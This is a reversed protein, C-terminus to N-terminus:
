PAVTKPKSLKERPNLHFTDLGVPFAAQPSWMAGMRSEIHLLREALAELAVTTQRIISLHSGISCLQFIKTARFQKCVVLNSFIRATSCEIRKGSSTPNQLMRLGRGNKLIGFAVVSHVLFYVRVNQRSRFCKRLLWSNCCCHHHLVHRNNPVGFNRNNSRGVYTSCEWKQSM